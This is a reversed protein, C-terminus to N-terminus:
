NVCKCVVVWCCEMGVIVIIVLEQYFYKGVEVVMVWLYSWM